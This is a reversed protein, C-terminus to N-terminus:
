EYRMAEAPRTRSARWAPYLSGVAGLVVAAGIAILMLQPSPVAASVANAVGAVAGGGGGAFFGGSGGAGFRGGSGFPNSVKPLLLKSLAPAGVSAIAVGVIGAVLSLLIGELLFQSMVNLNSFGLAKLTGIEKTRERVTYLMVFLVILSTAAVAVAIEEFAVTQTSSIASQDATLTQNYANEMTQLTNLQTNVTLDPFSASIEAAVTSVDSTSDAYVNLGSIQGPLDTVAQADTLNMYLTRIDAAAGFAFTSATGSEGYVGVVQFNTGNINVQEGVGVGFYGTNNESLLVVGSDGSELDRGETINTPLPVYGGSVLSSNLAVGEITYSSVNFTFTQGFRSTFTQTTIGEGVELTPVAAVVGPLSDVDDVVSENMYNGEGGGFRGSFGGYGGFGGGPYAGTSSSSNVVTILTLNQEVQTITNNYDTTLTQTSQQNALIGAPLSIMIALSFGLAIVVLLARM